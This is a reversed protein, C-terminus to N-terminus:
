CGVHVASTLDGFCSLLAALKALEMHLCSFEDEIKIEM